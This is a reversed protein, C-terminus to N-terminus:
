LWTWCDSLPRVSPAAGVVAAVVAARDPSAKDLIPATKEKGRAEFASDSPFPHHRTQTNCM